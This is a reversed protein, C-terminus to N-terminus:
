KTVGKIKLTINKATKNGKSDSVTVKVTDTYTSDRSIYNFMTTDVATIKKYLISSYAYVLPDMQNDHAFVAMHLTDPYSISDSITDTMAKFLTTAVMVSDIVPEPPAVQIMLPFNSMVTGDQIRLGVTDKYTKNLLKVVVKNNNKSILKTTDSMDWIYKMTDKVDPDRAYASIIL